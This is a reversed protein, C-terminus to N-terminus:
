KYFSIKQRICAAVQGEDLTTLTPIKNNKKLEQITISIRFVFGM